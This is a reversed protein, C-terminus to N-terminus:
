QYLEEILGADNTVINVSNTLLNAFTNTTSGIQISYPGNNHTLGRPNTIGFGAVDDSGDALAPLYLSDVNVLTADNTGTSDPLTTGYANKAHYDRVLVGSQWVKVWEIEVDSYQLNYRRGVDLPGAGVSSSITISDGDVSATENAPDFTFTHWDLDFDTINLAVGGALAYFKNVTSVRCGMAYFDGQQNGFLKDSGTFSRYRARIEIKTNGDTTIGTNFYADTGNFGLVKSGGNEAFYHSESQLGAWMVPLTSNATITADNGNGSVDYLKDGSSETMVYRFLGNVAIESIKGKWFRSDANRYTGINFGTTSNVSSGSGTETVGNITLSSATSTISWSIEVWEDLPLATSFALLTTTQAGIVLKGGSMTIYGSTYGSGGLSEILSATAPHGTNLWIRASGSFETSSTTALVQAYDGVGDFVLAPSDVLPMNNRAPSFDILENSVINGVAWSTTGTWTSQVMSHAHNLVGHEVSTPLVYTEAQVSGLMPLILLCVKWANSVRM